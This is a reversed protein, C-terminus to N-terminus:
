FLENGQKRLLEDLLLKDKKALDRNGAKEHCKIRLELARTLSNESKMSCCVDLDKIALAYKGQKFYNSARFYYLWFGNPNFKLAETYQEIAKNVDGLESYWAARDQHWVWVVKSFDRDGLKIGRVAVDSYNLASKFDRSESAIRARAMYANRYAPALKIAKDVDLKAKEIQELGLYAEGRKCYYSANNPSLSILKDYLPIAKAMQQSNFYREADAQLRQLGQASASISMSISMSLGALLLLAAYSWIFVARLCLGSILVRASPFLRLLM